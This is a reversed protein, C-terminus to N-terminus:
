STKQIDIVFVLTQGALEGSGSGKEGYAYRPPISVILRTGVKQGVLAAGFGEVVQDTSFTAAGRGYSQDFIKGTDWSTGQYDVTVNDGKEVVDGDGQELVKLLLDKPPATDPLKVTPKGSKDFSVEPVNKTWAAPELPKKIGLLDTVIVVTDDPGIGLQPNGQDGYMDKAPSVVVIRSGIKQCDIGAAFARIMQSDGAGLTVEQTGLASGDKGKYVSVLADVQQTAEIEQGDGEKVVTRQLSDAELPTDFTVEQKKGFEGSVEVAESQEGSEVEPCAAGASSADSSPSASSEPKSSADDGCAAVTFLLAATAVAVATRRLVSTHASTPLM